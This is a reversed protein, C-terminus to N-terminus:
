EYAIGGYVGAGLTYKKMEVAFVRYIVKFGAILPIALIMGLIGGLIGGVLAGLLSLVPHVNVQERMVFPMILVGDLVQVVVAIVVVALMAALDASTFLVLALGVVGGIIPGILRIVNTVAFVLAISLLLLPPLPQPLVLNCGLLLALTTIGLIVNEVVLGRLYAGFIESAKNLIFIGSEFFPNPIMEVITQYLRHGDSLAFFLVFLFVLLFQGGQMALNGLSQLLNSSQSALWNSVFGTVERDAIERDMLKYQRLQDNLQHAARLLQSTTRDKALEPSQFYQVERHVLPALSIVLYALAGVLVLVIASTSFLRPIGVQHGLRVLPHCLYGTLLAAIIPTLLSRVLYLGYLLLPVVVFSLLMAALLNRFLKSTEM